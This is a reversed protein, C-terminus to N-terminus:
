HFKINYKFDLVNKCIKLTLMLFNSLFLLRNNKFLERIKKSQYCFHSNLYFNKLFVSFIVFM